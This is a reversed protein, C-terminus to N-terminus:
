HIFKKGKTIYIGKPQQYEKLPNLNLIQGQPNYYHSTAKQTNRIDSIGTPIDLREIRFNDVKFWGTPDNGQAITGDNKRNSTRIGIELDEGDKVLVFVSMPKMMADATTTGQHAAFTNYEGDALINSAGSASAFYQVSKNAYLRCNGSIGNQNWMICSVKYIGPTLKSAPIKQYLKFDDPFPRAIVWCCYDGHPNEADANIGYSGGSPTVNMQWGYPRGRSSAHQGSANLEFDANVILKDTLGQTDPAETEVLIDSVVIAPDLYYVKISIDEEKSATYDFTAGSFGEAVTTNWKGKM